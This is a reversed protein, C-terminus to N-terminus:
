PQKKISQQKIEEDIARVEPLHAYPEEEPERGPLTTGQPINKIFEICDSWGARYRDDHALTTDYHVGPVQAPLQKSTPLARHQIADLLQKFGRNDLLSAFWQKLVDSKLIEDLTM